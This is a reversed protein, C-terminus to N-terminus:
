PRVGERQYSLVNPVHKICKHKLGESREPYVGRLM